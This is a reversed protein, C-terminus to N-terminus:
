TARVGLLDSPYLLAREPEALAVVKLGYFIIANM